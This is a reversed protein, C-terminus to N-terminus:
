ASALRHETLAAVRNSSLRQEGGGLTNGVGPFLMYDNADPEGSSSVRHKFVYCACLALLLICVTVILIDRKASEKNLQLQPAPRAPTFGKQAALGMKLNKSDFEVVFSRMFTDGLILPLGPGSKMLQLQCSQSGSLPMFLHDPDVRFEYGGMIFALTKSGEKLACPCVYLGMALGVMACDDQYNPPLLGGLITDYSGEPLAIYSTGSDLMVQQIEGAEDMLKGGVTIHANAMWWLFGQELAVDVHIMDGTYLAPDAPGFYLKSDESEGALVMTFKSVDIGKLNQVITPLGPTHSLDPLALGVV